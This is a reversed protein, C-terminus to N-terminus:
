WWVWWWWWWQSLKGISGLLSYLRVPEVEEYSIVVPKHRVIFSAVFTNDGVVGGTMDNGQLERVIGGSQYMDYHYEPLEHSRGFLTYHKKLQLVVVVMVVMMM